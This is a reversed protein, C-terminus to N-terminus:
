RRSENAAVGFGVGIGARFLGSVVLSPRLIDPLFRQKQEESGFAMIVARRITLGFAISHPAGAGNGASFLSRRRTAQAAM